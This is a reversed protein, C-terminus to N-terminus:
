GLEYITFWFCPVLLYVQLLMHHLVTTSSMICVEPWKSYPDVVVLFMKDAFLDAFDVHVRQWPTTPWAWPHLPAKTPANKVSQCAPCTKALEEVEKDLGPWWFHLAKMHVVGSHGQHLEEIVKQCLALPIVVQVGCLITNGEISLELHRNWYSRLSEEIVEPGGTRTYYLVKSLIPDKHTESELETATM